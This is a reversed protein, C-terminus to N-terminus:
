SVLLMEMQPICLDVRRTEEEVQETTINSNYVDGRLCIKDVAMYGNVMGSSYQVQAQAASEKEDTLIQLLTDKHRLVGRFKGATSSKPDYM